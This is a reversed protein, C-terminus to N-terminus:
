RAQLWRLRVIVSGASGLPTVTSRCTLPPDSFVMAAREEGMLSGFAALDLANGCLVRHSGLL